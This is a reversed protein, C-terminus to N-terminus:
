QCFSILLYTGVSSFLPWYVVASFEYISPRKRDLIAASDINGAAHGDLANKIAFMGHKINNACKEDTQM